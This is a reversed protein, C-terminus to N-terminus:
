EKCDELPPVRELLFYSKYTVTTAGGSMKDVNSKIQIEHPKRANCCITVAFAHLAAAMRQPTKMARKLAAFKALSVM